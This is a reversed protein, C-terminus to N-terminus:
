AVPATYMDIPGLGLRGCADCDNPNSVCNGCPSLARANTTQQVPAEEANKFIVCNDVHCEKGDASSHENSCVYRNVGSESRKTFRCHFSFSHWGIKSIKM